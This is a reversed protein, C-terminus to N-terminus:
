KEKPCHTGTLILNADRLQRMDSNQKQDFMARILDELTATQTEM